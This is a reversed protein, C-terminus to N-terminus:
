DALKPEHVKLLLLVGLLAIFSLIRFGLVYSGTIDILYGFMPPIFLVGLQMMSVTVGVAAGGQEKKALKMVMAIHIGNWGMASMGYFWSVLAALWFPTNSTFTSLILITVFMVLGEFILAPKRAGKLLSDSVLGLVIRATIGALQSIALCLSAKRIDIGATDRLFLVLYTLLVYQAGLFLISTIQAYWFSGNRLFSWEERKENLNKTKKNEMTQPHERYLSYCIFSGCFLMIGATAMATRWGWNLAIYPLLLAGVFGGLPIGTQRLGLAFGIQAPPFWNTIAKSGVPTPASCFAGTIFLAAALLMFTNIRSTFIIAASAFISCFLLVSREGKKDAIRGAMIATLSMGMNVAGGAFGIMAKTLGMDAVIFPALTSTTTTICSNLAQIGISLALITWRYPNVDVARDPKASTSLSQSIDAQQHLFKM